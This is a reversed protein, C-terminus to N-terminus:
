KQAPLNVVILGTMILAVGILELLTPREGLLSWALIVALVPVGLSSMSAVAASVREIVALWMIWGLATALIAMYAVGWYLPPEWVIAPQPFLWVLPLTIIIGMLMQWATLNVVDPRHRQFMLKSLVMGLGWSMGGTLALLSGVVAGLGQWPAIIAVLGLAAFVFALQQKRGPREGLLLWAFVMAWFPMTYALMVVHGAGGSFLALQCLCQFATTQFVAIGLTLWFPPLVFRGGRWRLAILVVPFAIVYRIFVLDFPGIYHTMTKMVIWSLGWLAVTFSMLIIAGRDPQSSKM